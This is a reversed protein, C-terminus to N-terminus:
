QPKMSKHAPLFQELIFLGSRFAPIAPSLAACFRDSDRTSIMWDPVDRFTQLEEWILADQEQAIFQGTKSM